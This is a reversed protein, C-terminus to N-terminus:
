SASSFCQEGVIRDATNPGGVFPADNRQCMLLKGVTNHTVKKLSSGTNGMVRLTGAVVNTSISAEPNPVASSMTNRDVFLNGESLINEEIFSRFGRMSNGSIHVHGQSVRNHHIRLLRTIDNNRIVINGKSLVNPGSCGEEARVREFYRVGVGGTVGEIIIHGSPMTAGCVLFEPTIPFPPQAPGGGLIHVNGEIRNDRLRVGDAETALVNGGIDNNHAQLLGNSLVRVHGKVVSNDLVCSKGAPVVVNEFTGGDLVGDCETSPTAGAPGPAFVM